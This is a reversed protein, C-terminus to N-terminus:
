VRVADSTALHRGGADIATVRAYRAAPTPLKIVTEFGHRAAIGVSRVDDAHDGGSVLWHTVETAGNWSVYLTRSGSRRDHKAAVTPVDNPSGRWPFRYARYSDHRAGLTADAILAGDETFESVLPASGWGILAHGDPLTQFNGMANALKPKHPHTYARVLRVAKGNEDIDLVVGRSQPETKRFGTADAFEAAGDDFLTINGDPVYRADHQWSFQANNEVQFDSSKGGMRWLVEGTTRHIKYLAWTHRASVLLHGDPAVAISNLHVYDNGYWTKPPFYSDSVPVHELSRWEFLLRGSAIDVEQIIGELVTGNSPGGIDSLDTPVHQPWCTFLATGQPTVLFEHIDISRGNGARVRALERYSSDVIVGEGRGFGIVDMQGEWWTMAPQGRFTALRIDTAWLARPIPRFWVPEGHDDVLMPGAQVSDWASPGLFLYGPAVSDPPKLTHDPIHHTMVSMAPPRLDPRSVFELAPGKSQSAHAPLRRLHGFMRSAGFAGAGLAVVGAGGLGGKLLQRRTLRPSRM